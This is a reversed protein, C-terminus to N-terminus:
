VVRSACVQAERSWADVTDDRPLLLDCRAILLCSSSGSSIKPSGSLSSSEELFPSLLIGSSGPVSRSTLAVNPFTLLGLMFRWYQFERDVLSLVM